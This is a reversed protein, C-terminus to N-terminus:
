VALCLQLLICANGYRHGPCPIGIDSQCVTHGKRFLLARIDNDAQMVIGCVPCGLIACHHQYGIAIVPRLQRFDCLIDAASQQFLQFGHSQSIKAEQAPVTGGLYIGIAGRRIIVANDTVGRQAVQGAHNNLM